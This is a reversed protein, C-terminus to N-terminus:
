KNGRSVKLSREAKTIKSFNNSRCISLGVAKELKGLIDLVGFSQPSKMNLGARMHWQELWHDGETSSWPEVNLFDVIDFHLFKFM